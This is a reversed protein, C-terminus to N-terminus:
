RHGGGGGHSGGGGGGGGAGHFGGGGGGAPAGHFGGGPNSGSYNAHSQVSPQAMNSAGRYGYNGGGNFSRGASNGFAGSAPRNDAHAFGNSHFSGNVASGRNAAFGAGGHNGAFGNAHVYSVGGPHGSFGNYPHNYIHFGRGYGINCYARNYFFRGGGWYGGYFGIGFYGFGYNIGGYYGVTPGWYGANWFYGDDAYGWYGPTWLAGTYPANVWAGDVWEYGEPGYAWYGPTWIYGDGPAPPQQYDPIPPPEQEIGTPAGSQAGPAGGNQQPAAYNGDQQAGPAGYQDNPDAPPAAPSGYQGNNEGLPAGSQSGNPDAPPGYQAQAAIPMAILSGALLATGLPTKLLHTFTM